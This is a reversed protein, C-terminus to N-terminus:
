LADLVDKVDDEIDDIMKQRKPTMPLTVINGQLTYVTLDDGNIMINSLVFNSQVLGDPRTKPAVLNKIKKSM